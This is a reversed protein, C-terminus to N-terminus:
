PPVQMGREELEDELHRVRRKLRARELRMKTVAPSNLRCRGHQADMLMDLVVDSHVDYRTPRRVLLHLPVCIVMLAPLCQM